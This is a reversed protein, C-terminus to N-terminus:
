TVESRALVWGIESLIEWLTKPTPHYSCLLSKYAPGQHPLM